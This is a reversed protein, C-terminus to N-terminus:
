VAAESSPRAIPATAWARDGTPVILQAGRSQGRVVAAKAARAARFAAAALIVSSIGHLILKALAELSATQFRALAASAVNARMQLADLVFVGSGALMALGIGAAVVAVAMTVKRDGMLLAIGFILLLMLLPVGFSSAALGVAGFRWALKGPIIPWVTTAFDVVPMLAALTLIVYAPARVSRLAPSPSAIM